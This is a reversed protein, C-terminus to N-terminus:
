AKKHSHPARLHPNACGVRHDALESALRLTHTYEGFAFYGDGDVPFDVYFVQRQNIVFLPVDLAGDGVFWRTM